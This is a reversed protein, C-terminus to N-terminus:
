TNRCLPRTGPLFPIVRLEPKPTPSGKSVHTFLLAILSAGGGLVIGAKVCGSNRKGAILHTLVFDSSHFGSAERRVEGSLPSFLVGWGVISLFPQIELAPCRSACLLM